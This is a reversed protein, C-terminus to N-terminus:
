SIGSRSDFLNSFFESASQHIKLLPSRRSAIRYRRPRCVSLGLLLFGFGGLFWESLQLSELRREQQMMKM